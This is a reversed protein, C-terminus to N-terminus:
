WFYKKHYFPSVGKKNQHSSIDQSRRMFKVKMTKRFKCSPSFFQKGFKQLNMPVWWKWCSVQNKGSLFNRVSNPWLPRLYSFISFFINFFVNATVLKQLLWKEHWRLTIGFSFLLEIFLIRRARMLNRCRGAIPMVSAVETVSLSRTM